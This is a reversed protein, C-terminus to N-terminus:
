QKISCPIPHIGVDSCLQQWGQLKFSNGYVVSLEEIRTQMASTIHMAWASDDWTLLLTTSNTKPGPTRIQDFAM